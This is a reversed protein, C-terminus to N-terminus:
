YLSLRNVLEPVFRFIVREQDEIDYGFELIEDREQERLNRNDVLWKRRPNLLKAHRHLYKNIRIISKDLKLPERNDVFQCHYPAVLFGAYESPKFIMKDVREVLSIQPPKTIDVSETVLHPSVAGGGLSADFCECSITLGPYADYLALAEGISGHKVPILFEDIDLFVMWKSDRKAYMHLANEYAPIQVGLVWKFLDPGLAKEIFVPWQVLTVMKKNIYPRIEKIFSDSSGNDYLYFHDVGILRHYEIWEKINKAENRFLVCISVNYKKKKIPKAELSFQFLLFLLWVLPLPLNAVVGLRM